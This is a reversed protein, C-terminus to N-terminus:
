ELRKLREATSLSELIRKQSRDNNARARAIKEQIVDSPIFAKPRASHQLDQLMSCFEKQFLIESDLFHLIQETVWEQDFKLMEADLELHSREEWKHYLAAVFLGVETPTEGYIRHLEKLDQEADLGRRQINTKIESLQAPRDAPVCVPESVAGEAGSGEGNPRSGNHFAAKNVVLQAPSRWNNSPRQYTV